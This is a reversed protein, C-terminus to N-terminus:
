RLRPPRDPVSASPTEPAVDPLMAFAHAVRSLAPVAAHDAPLFAVDMQGAEVGSFTLAESAARALPAEAVPDAAIFALLHGRRGDSYEVGALLAAVAMGRAAALRAELAGILSAPLAGPPHFAVPRATESVPTRALLDSLWSLAEPPVLFASPAVGLNVGLGVGQGALAQAIIRGPLAVYPVPVGAAAALRDERDFALVLPGEELAFTQPEFATGQPEAALWLFLEEDALQAYYTLRARDDEPSATMAAHARDLATADETDDM